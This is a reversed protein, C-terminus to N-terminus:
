SVRKIDAGLAHLREEIREYGRDIQDINNIITTGKAVLGAIVLSAGARIDWSEISLGQLPTAGLVFARHPDVIEIDAGM